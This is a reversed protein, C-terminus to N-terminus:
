QIVEDADYDQQAPQGLLQWYDMPSRGIGPRKITLNDATFTDGSRIPCAAVLSKRAVAANSIEVPAPTKEASGLALEVARIAEVMSALEKPELSARHDPGPLNRDLTFHKEIVRAGRAVAAVAINIGETHDSYGVPLGFTERLTDMARLNVQDPPCPYETTCHLLTIRQKLLTQARENNFADAFAARSPATNNQLFGFAIIELAERVDDLTAMGTSLILPRGAQAIQLLLPGNTLEGSGLKLQSLKLEDLLFRASEQDFPSSLFEIGRKQCRTILAPHDDFPLALRKLMTLQSGPNNHSDDENRIQYEAQGAHRSALAEPKFTQFKVADAGADAAADVLALACDREGNHNVGAEAIIYVETM